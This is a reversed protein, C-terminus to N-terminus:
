ILNGSPLHFNVRGLNSSKMPKLWTKVIGGSFECMRKVEGPFGNARSSGLSLDWHHVWSIILVVELLLGAWCTNTLHTRRFLYKTAGFIQGEPTALDGFVSM